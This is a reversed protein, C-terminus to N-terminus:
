VGLIWSVLSHLWDGKLSFNIGQDDITVEAKKARKASEEAIRELIEQRRDRCNIASNQECFENWQNPTM